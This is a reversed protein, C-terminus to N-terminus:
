SEEVNDGLAIRGPRVRLPKGAFPRCVLPVVQIIM